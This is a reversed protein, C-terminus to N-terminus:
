RFNREMGNVMTFNLGGAGVVNKLGGGTISDLARGSTAAQFVTADALGAHSVVEGNFLVGTSPNTLWDKTPTEPLVYIGDFRPMLDDPGIPIPRKKYPIGPVVALDRWWEPQTWEPQSPKVPAIWEEWEEVTREQVDPQVFM